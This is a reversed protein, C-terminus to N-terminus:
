SNAVGLKALAELELMYAAETAEKQKRRKHIAQEEENEDM